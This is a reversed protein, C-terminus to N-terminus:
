IKAGVWSVPDAFAKVDFLITMSQRTGNESIVYSTNGEILLVSNVDRTESAWVLRAQNNGADQLTWTLTTTNGLNDTYSAHTGSDGIKATQPIVAASVPIGIVMTFLDQSGLLTKNDTATSYYETSGNSFMQSTNTDTWDNQIRVPNAQQGNFSTATQTLQLHTGQLMLGSPSTGTINYEERFGASFYGNPFLQFSVETPEPSQPDSGGCSSLFTLLLLGAFVLLRTIFM